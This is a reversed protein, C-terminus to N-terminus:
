KINLGESFKAYSPETYVSQTQFQPAPSVHSQSNANVQGQIIEEEHM